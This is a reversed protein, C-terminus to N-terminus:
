RNLIVKLRGKKKVMFGNRFLFATIRHRLNDPQEGVLRKKRWQSKRWYHRWVRVYPNYSYLQWPKDETCYHVVTPDQMTVGVEDYIDDVYNIDKGERLFGMQFNYETSVWKKEKYLVTNLVDQDHMIIDDGYKDIYDVFRNLCDNSRWYDLNIVLMGANFYGYECIPYKHRGSSIHVKEDQDYVCALAYGTIDLNWLQQLSKRVIVDGDLYLLKHVDEPLIQTIFLRYYTAIGIHKPMGERGFPLSKTLDEGVVYFSIENGYKRAIRLLSTKNEETISNNVLIYYHIDAPNNIGISHMLVGTPMVYNYDTSLLINM